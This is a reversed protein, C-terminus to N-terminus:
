LTVAPVTAPTTSSGTAPKTSSGTAPTASSGTAPKTSSGTAPTTSSGTAPATSSGTAPTTSSGTAPATSSGTAPTTSSGTAPTTSSGTAPTTSSGIAPTTSSGIAPTTSSGTAPATSSGTAPATSSGTAPATSSGTAPATSSGTAPTTSSGTAPTTSSGTAPTTSSGTAPATSPGPPPTALPQDASSSRSPARRFATGTVPNVLTFSIEPTTTKQIYTVSTASFSQWRKGTYTAQTYAMPKTLPNGCFCKTVPQGYRDILVATGAELVAPFSTIHGDIYGHNTIATDSRLVASTLGAVYGPIDAPRIGFVGAWAAAKSPHTHLFSVLQQPNCSAKRLTGGYLGPTAGSFNGGSGPLLKLRSQDTGVPPMFPNAGQTGVPELTVAAPSSTPTLILAAVSGSLVLVVTALVGIIAKPSFRGHKGDSGASGPSGPGPPRAYISPHPRGPAATSSGAAESSSPILPPVTATPEPWAAPPALGLPLNPLAARETAPRPPAMARAAEDPASGAPGHGPLGRIVPEPLPHVGPQATSLEALLQAATPRDQPCKALCHGILRRIEAPLRDINPEACVVRYLLAASSAEGFPGEGTAAFTLVAGLSFIDSPPGVDHGEAQEPAMFGPSGVVMGTRTLARTEVSRCIGFDILRPGDEALLVNSPKLDRHVVGASHIASLGEALGAALRLVSTPPLPGRDSVADALSPGAVYSTALWPLPGDPDADVVPATYIGSVKRAASVERAFRARFEADEALEERIVKIAVHRGGPSRGLYVRGMGGSGLRGELWYPGIWQPDGSQLEDM